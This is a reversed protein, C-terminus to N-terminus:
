GPDNCFHWYNMVNSREESLCKRWCQSTHNSCMEFPISQVQTWAVIIMYIDTFRCPQLFWWGEIGMGYYLFNYLFNTFFFFSCSFAIHQDLCLTFTNQTTCCEVLWGGGVRGLELGTYGDLCRNICRSTWSRKMEVRFVM